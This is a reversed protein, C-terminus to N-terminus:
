RPAAATSPAARAGRQRLAVSDSGVSEISLGDLLPPPSVRFADDYVRRAYYWGVAGFSAMLVGRRASRAAGTILAPGTRRM